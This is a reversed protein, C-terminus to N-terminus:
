ILQFFISLSISGEKKKKGYSSMNKLPKRRFNRKCEFVTNLAANAKPDRYSFLLHLQTGKKLDEEQSDRLPAEAQKPPCGPSIGSSQM